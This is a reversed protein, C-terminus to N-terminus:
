ERALNRRLSGAGIVLMVMMLVLLGWQNLSPIVLPQPTGLVGAFGADFAFSWDGTNGSSLPRAILFYTEGALLDISDNDDSNDVFNMTTDAPNFAGQYVDLQMDVDYSISMDGHGFTATASSVFPGVIEYAFSSGSWM